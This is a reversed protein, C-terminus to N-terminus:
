RVARPWAIPSVVGYIVVLGSGGGKPTNERTPDRVTVVGLVIRNNAAWVKGAQGITADTISQIFGSRFNHIVDGTKLGEPCNGAAGSTDSTLM